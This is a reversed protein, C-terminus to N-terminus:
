VLDPFTTPLQWREREWFCKRAGCSERARSGVPDSEVRNLENWLGASPTAVFILHKGKAEQACPRTQLLSAAKASDLLKGATRDVAETSKASRHTVVDRIPNRVRAAFARHSLDGRRIRSETGSLCLTGNRLLRVQFKPM